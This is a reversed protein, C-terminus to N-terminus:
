MVCCANDAIARVDEVAFSAECHNLQVFRVFPFLALQQLEELHMSPSNLFQEHEVASQLVRLVEQLYQLRHRLQLFADHLLNRGAIGEPVRRSFKKRLHVLQARQLQYFAIEADHLAEALRQDGRELEVQLVLEVFGVVQQAKQGILLIERREDQVVDELAVRLKELRRDDVNREAQLLECDGLELEALRWVIGDVQDVEQLKMRLRKLHQLQEFVNRFANVLEGEGSEM